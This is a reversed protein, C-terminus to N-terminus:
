FVLGASVDVYIAQTANLLTRGNTMRVVSNNSRTLTAAFNLRNSFQYDAGLQLSSQQRLFTNTISYAIDLTLTEQPTWTLGISNTNDPFSLLTFAVSSTNRSRQLLLRAPIAPDRTYQYQDHSAYIAVTPSIDQSIGLSARKQDPILAALATNASLRASLRYDFAGYGLDIATRLPSQWFQNFSASLGVENGSVEFVTDSTKSYRYNGSLSHNFDGRLGVGSQRMVEVDGEKARFLDFNAQAPYTFLDVSARLAHSRYADPGSGITLEGYGEARATACLCMVFIPLAAVCSRLDPILVM